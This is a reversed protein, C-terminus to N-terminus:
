FYGLRHPLIVTSLEACQYPHSKAFRIPSCHPSWSPLSSPSTSPESSPVSTPYSSQSGDCVGIADSHTGPHCKGDVMTFM